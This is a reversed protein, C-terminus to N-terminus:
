VHARGIELRMGGFEVAEGERVLQDARPSTVPMGFPASLNLDADSLMPEDGAGILLPADPYAAKMEANGAIHDAHGHTNLIAAVTLGQERLFEVILEPQLGPDIVLADSRPPQWVVYTNEEFPLSVITQIQVM